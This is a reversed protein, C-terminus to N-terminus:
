YPLEQYPRKVLLSLGAMDLRLKQGTVTASWDPVLAPIKYFAGEGKDGPCVKPKEWLSHKEM